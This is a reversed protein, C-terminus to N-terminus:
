QCSLYRLNLIVLWGRYYLGAEIICFAFHFRPARLEANGNSAYNLHFRPARLEFCDSSPAELETKKLESKGLEAFLFASSPAGRPVELRESSLSKKAEFLWFYIHGM